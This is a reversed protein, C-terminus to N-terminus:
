GTSRVPMARERLYRLVMAESAGDAQRRMRPTQPEADSGLHRLVACVTAAYDATLAEYTLSLPRVAMAAFLNRFHGHCFDSYSMIREIREIDFPAAAPADDQTAGPISRWRGTEIALVASVAQRLKDERWLHVFAPNPFLRAVHGALVGYYDAPVDSPPVNAFRELEPDADRAIEEIDRWFLKVGLTGDPATRHRRIAASLSDFDPADWRRAFSPRFGAHFYELPCGLGGAFYLAEGLLTSGSRPHTCLLVTRLPPGDWDPYDHAASALDYPAVASARDSIQTM